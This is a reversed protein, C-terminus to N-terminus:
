ISVFLHYWHVPLDQLSLVDPRFSFAVRELAFGIALLIKGFSFNFQARILLLLVFPWFRYTARILLCSESSGTLHAAFLRTGPDSNEFDMM